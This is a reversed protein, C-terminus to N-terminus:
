RAMRACVKPRAIASLCDGEAQARRAILDAETLEEGPTSSLEDAEDDLAPAIMLDTM